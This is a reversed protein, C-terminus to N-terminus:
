IKDEGNILEKITNEDLSWAKDLSTQWSLCFHKEYIKPKFEHFLDLGITHDSIGLSLWDAEFWDKYDSESAPYLPVCCLPRTHKIRAFDLFEKGRECSVIVDLGRPVLDILNHTEKRFDYKQTQCAIKVFPIDFKLLFDLSPKDFISATTKLGKSKAYYYAQSFVGPELRPVKYPGIEKDHFLQWKIVVDDRVPVADIMVRIQNEDNKCTDGSGM